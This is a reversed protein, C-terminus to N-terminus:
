GKKKSSPNLIENIQNDLTADDVLDLSNHWKVANMEVIKRSDKMYIKGARRLNWLVILVIVFVIFEFM